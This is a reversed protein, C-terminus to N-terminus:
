ENQKEVMRVYIAREESNERKDRGHEIGNGKEHGKVKGHTGQYDEVTYCQEDRNDPIQEIEQTGLHFDFGIGFGIFCAVALFFFGIRRNRGVFLALWM